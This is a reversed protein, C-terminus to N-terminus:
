ACSHLTHVPTLSESNMDWSLEKEKKEPKTVRFVKRLRKLMMNRTQLIFIVFSDVWYHPCLSYSILCTTLRAWM